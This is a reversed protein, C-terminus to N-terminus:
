GGKSKFYLYKKTFAEKITGRSRKLAPWLYPRNAVKRKGSRMGKEMSLAYPANSGISVAHGGMARKPEKIADSSKARPGLSSKDGFTTRYTISDHLRHSWPAPPKGPASAVHIVGKVKYSRWSGPVMSERVNSVIKTGVEVLASRVETSVMAKLLPNNIFTKM